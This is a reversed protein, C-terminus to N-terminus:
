LPAVDIQITAIPKTKSSIVQGGYNFGNKMCNALYNYSTPLNGIVENKETVAQLRKNLTIKIPTGASPLTSYNVYYESRDVDELSTSFARECIDEGSSGGQKKSSSSNNSYDTFNGSGSSGM